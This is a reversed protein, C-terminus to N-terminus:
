PEEADDDSHEVILMPGWVEVGHVPFVLDGDLYFGCGDM